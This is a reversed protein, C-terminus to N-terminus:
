NSRAAHRWNSHSASKQSLIQVVTGNDRFFALIGHSGVAILKQHHSLIPNDIGGLGDYSWILRGDDSDVMRLTSEGPQGRLGFVFLGGSVVGRSYTAAGLAHKWVVNGDSRDLGYYDGQGTGVFIRQGEDDGVPGARVAGDIEAKWLLEWSEYRNQEALLPPVPVLMVISAVIRILTWKARKALRLKYM